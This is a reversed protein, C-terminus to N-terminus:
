SKKRDDQSEKKSIQEAMPLFFNSIEKESIRVIDTKPNRYGTLWGRKVYNDITRLTVKLRAAAEQRTLLEEM